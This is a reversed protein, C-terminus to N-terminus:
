VNEEIKKYKSRKTRKYEKAKTRKSHRYMYYASIGIIMLSDTLNLSSYWHFNDQSVIMLIKIIAIVIMLSFGVIKFVNESTFILFVSIAVFLAFKILFIGNYDIQNGKINNLTEPLYFVSALYM